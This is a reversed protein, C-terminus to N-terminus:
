ITEFELQQSTLCKFICAVKGDKEGHPINNAKLWRLGEALKERLSSETVSSFKMRLHEGDAPVIEDFPINSIKGRLRQGNHTDHTYEIGAEIFITQLDKPIAVVHLVAELEKYKVNVQQIEREEFFALDKSM